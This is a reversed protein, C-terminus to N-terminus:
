VVEAQYCAECYVIEPRDAAYPTRFQNSCHAAGHVHEVLNKYLGGESQEGNCQCVRDFLGPKNKFRLREVHRCNFCLRPLPVNMKKYLAYEQPLIKFAVMCNERCGGAPPGSHACGIIKKVIDDSAGGIADPLEAAKIDMSFDKVTRDYWNYGQATAEEKTLPYYDQLWTENYGFPSLESPFYEGYKYVRGARDTYPMTNMQEKIRAVMKEYEEKTYQKNLICYQGKRMGVCGFLDSSSHCSICYKLNTCSPWIDWCFQIDYVGLGAEYTEYVLTADEGWVSYDYSDKAYPPVMLSQVYKLNEGGKVFYGDKVNKSQYVHEGTTEHTNRQHAFRVPHQTYLEQIRKSINPISSFSGNWLENIKQEYEKKSYPVNFIYFEKKNLNVCGFCNSCGRLNRSFAINHSDECDISFLAGYCQFCGVCGYCLECSTLNTSDYCDKCDTVDVSYYCQECKSANFTLYCDKLHGANACYDSNEMGEVSAHFRPVKSFLEKFQEFFSRDFDYAKGYQKPDWADTFWYEKEYVPFPADARYISFITKGTADCKRQYM